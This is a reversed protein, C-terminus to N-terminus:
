LQLVFTLVTIENKLFGLPQLLRELRSGEDKLDTSLSIFAAYDDNILKILEEKLEALYQRLEVRLDNLPTHARSLLFVEVDFVEAILHPDNHSLPVHQPLSGFESPLQSHGNLERSALEDALRELQYPDRSLILPTPSQEM